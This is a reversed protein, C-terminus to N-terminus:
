YDGGEEESLMVFRNEGVEKHVKADSCATEDINEEESNTPTVDMGETSEATPSFHQRSDGSVERKQRLEFPQFSKM